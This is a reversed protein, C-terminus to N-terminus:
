SNRTEVTLAPPSGGGVKDSEGIDEGGWRSGGYISGPGLAVTATRTLTGPDVLVLM